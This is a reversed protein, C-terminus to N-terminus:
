EPEEDLRVPAKLAGPSRPSWDDVMSPEGPWLDLARGAAERIATGDLQLRTQPIGRGPCQLVVTVPGAPPLPWVWYTLDHRRSGGGGRAMMLVPRRPEEDLSPPVIHDLNTVKSGDALQLGVRIFDDPVEEDHREPHWHTVWLPFGRREARRLVAVLEFEFGTSYARVAAIALVADESRAVLPALPVTM